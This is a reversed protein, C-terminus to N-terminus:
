GMLDKEVEYSVAWAPLHAEEWDWAEITEKLAVDTTEFGAWRKGKKSCIYAFADLLDKLGTTERYSVFQVRVLEYNHPNTEGVLIGKVQGDGELYFSKDPEKEYVQMFSGLFRLKQPEDLTEMLDTLDELDIGRIRPGEPPIIHKGPLGRAMRYRAGTLRYGCSLYFDLSFPTGTVVREFGENRSRTELTEMLKRGIGRGQWAPHIAIWGIGTREKGTVSCTMFGVVDDGAAAVYQWDPLRQLIGVIGAGFRSTFRAYELFAQNAIRVVQSFDELEMKRITVEM